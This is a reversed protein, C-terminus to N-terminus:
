PINLPGKKCMHLTTLFIIRTRSYETVKSYKGFKNQSLLKLVDLKSKFAMDYHISDYYCLLRQAMYTHLYDIESSVQWLHIQSM